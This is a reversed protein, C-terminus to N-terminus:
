DVCIAVVTGQSVHQRCGFVDNDVSCTGTARAGDTAGEPAMCVGECQANDTCAKGGDPTPLVCQEIDAMGLAKWEGGRERCASETAVESSATATREAPACGALLVALCLAPALFRSM